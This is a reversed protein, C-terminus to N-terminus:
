RCNTFLVLLQELLKPFIEWIDLKMVEYSIVAQWSLFRDLKLCFLGQLFLQIQNILNDNYQTTHPTNRM